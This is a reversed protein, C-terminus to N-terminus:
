DEEVSLPIPPNGRLSVPSPKIPPPPPIDGRFGIPPIPPIDGRFGIPPIPPIDGRIGIPPTPPIDPPPPVDRGLGALRQIPPIDHRRRRSSIKGASSTKKAM